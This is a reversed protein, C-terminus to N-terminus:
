PSIPDIPVGLLIIILTKIATEGDDDDDDDQILSGDADHSMIRGATRGEM